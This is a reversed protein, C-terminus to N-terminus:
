WRMSLHLYRTTLFANDAGDFVNTKPPMYPRLLRRFSRSIRLDLRAHSEDYDDYAGEAWFYTRLVICRDQQFCFGRLWAEIPYKHGWPLLLVHRCQVDVRLEGSLPSWIFRVIPPLKRTDHEVWWLPHREPAWPPPMLGTTATIDLLRNVQFHRAM